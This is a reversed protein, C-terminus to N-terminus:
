QVPKSKVQKSNAIVQPFTKAHMIHTIWTAM